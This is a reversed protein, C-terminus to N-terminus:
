PNLQDAGIQRRRTESGCWSTGLAATMPSSTVAQRIGGRLQRLHLGGRVRGPELEDHQM